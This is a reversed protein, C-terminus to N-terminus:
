QACGMVLGHEFRAAQEVMFGQERKAQAQATTLFVGEFKEGTDWNFGCYQETPETTRHYDRGRKM